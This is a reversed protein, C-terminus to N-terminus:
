TKAWSAVPITIPAPTGTRVAGTSLSSRKRRLFPTEVVTYSAVTAAMMATVAVVVQVAPQHPLAEAIAVLVLYHWLYLGYSRRGLWLLPASTLFSGFPGDENAAAWIVLACAGAIMTFGGVYLSTDDIHVRLALAALVLWGGCAAVYLARPQPRWRTAVVSLLAGVLLPAIRFGPQTYSHRWNNDITWHWACSATSAAIATCLLMSLRGADNGVRRLTFMWVLPWLLYFQEEVALSWLHALGPANLHGSAFAFDTVYGVVAALSVLEDHLSHGTVCIWVVHCTMLLALAPLLRLARRQYFAPVDISRTTTFETTLLSTILFGSLVFFLDVGLFGGPVVTGAWRPILTEITHIVVVMVVAIARLGDLQAM